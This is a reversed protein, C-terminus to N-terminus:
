WSATVTGVTRIMAAPRPVRIRELMGLTSCGSQPRGSEQPRDLRRALGAGLPDDHHQSRVAICDLAHQRRADLDRDLVRLGAGAVGDSAARSSSPPAFSTITSDPSWGSSSAPSRM